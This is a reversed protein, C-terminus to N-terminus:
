TSEKEIACAACALQLVRQGTEMPRFLVVMLLFEDDFELGCGACCPGEPRRLVADLAINLKM